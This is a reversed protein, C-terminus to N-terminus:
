YKNAVLHLHVKLLKGTKQALQTLFDSADTWSTIQYTHHLYEHKVRDLVAQIHQSPEKINEVRVQLAFTHDTADCSSHIIHSLIVLRTGLDKLLSPAPVCQTLM